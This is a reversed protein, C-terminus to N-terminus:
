TYFLNSNYCITLVYARIIGEQKPVLQACGWCPLQLSTDNDSNSGDNNSLTLDIISKSRVIIKRISPLDDGDSDSV